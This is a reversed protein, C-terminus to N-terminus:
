LMECTSQQNALLLVSCQLLVEEPRYGLLFAIQLWGEGKGTALWLVVTPTSCLNAGHVWEGEVEIESTNALLM